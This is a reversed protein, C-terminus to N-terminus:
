SVRAYIASARPRRTAAVLLLGVAFLVVVTPEPTASANVTGVVLGNSFDVMTITSGLPGGYGHPPPGLPSPSNYALGPLFTRLTGTYDGSDLDRVVLNEDFGPFVAAFSMGVALTPDAFGVTVHGAGIADHYDGVITYAEVPGIDDPFSFTGGGPGFNAPTLGDVGFQNKLAYGGGVPRAVFWINQLPRADTVTVDIMAAGRATLGVGVVVLGLVLGAVKLNRRRM